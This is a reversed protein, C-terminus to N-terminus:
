ASRTAAHFKPKRGRKAGAYKRPAEPPEVTPPTVTVTTVIAPAEKIKTRLQRIEEAAWARGEYYRHLQRKLNDTDGLNGEPTFGADTCLLLLDAQPYENYLEPKVYPPIRVPGKAVPAAQAVPRGCSGEIVPAIRWPMRLCVWNTAIIDDSEQQSTPEYCYAQHQDNWTFVREVNATDGITRTDYGASRPENVLKLFMFHLLLV